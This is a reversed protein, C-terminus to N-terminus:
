NLAFVDAATLMARCQQVLARCQRAQWVASLAALVV